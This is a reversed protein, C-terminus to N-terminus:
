RARSWQTICQVRGKHGREDTQWWVARKSHYRLLEAASLFGLIKWIYFGASNNEVNFTEEMWITENVYYFKFVTEKNLSSLTKYVDSSESLDRVLPSKLLIGQPKREKYEDRFINIIASGSHISWALSGNELKEPGLSNPIKSLADTLLEDLSDFREQETQQEEADAFFRGIGKVISDVIEEKFTYDTGFFVVQLYYLYCRILIGDNLEKVDEELIAQVFQRYVHVKRVVDKASWTSTDTSDLILKQYDLLEIAQEEWATDPLLAAIVDFELKRSSKHADKVPFEIEKLANLIAFASVQEFSEITKAGLKLFQKALATYSDTQETNDSDPPLASVPTAFQEQQEQHFATSEKFVSLVYELFTPTRRVSALYRLQGARSNVKVSMDGKNGNRLYDVIKDRDSASRRLWGERLVNWADRIFDTTPEEGYGEVLKAITKKRTTGMKWGQSIENLTANPLTEWFVM